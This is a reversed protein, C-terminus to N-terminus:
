RAPSTKKSVISSQSFIILAAPALTTFFCLPSKNWIYLIWYLQSTLPFLYNAKCDFSGEDFTRTPRVFFLKIRLSYLLTRWCTSILQLLLLYERQRVRSVVLECYNLLCIPYEIVDPQMPIILGSEDCLVRLLLFFFTSNKRRARQTKATWKIKRGLLVRDLVLRFWVFNIDGMGM